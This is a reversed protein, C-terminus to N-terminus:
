PNKLYLILANLEEDTLDKYRQKYRLIRESYIDKLADAGTIRNKLELDTYKKGIADLSNRPAGNGALSHCSACFQENYIERGAETLSIDPGAAVPTMPMPANDPSADKKGAPAPNQLNAFLASLLLIILGTLFAIRKAWRERM